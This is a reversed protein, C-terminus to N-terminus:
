TAGTDLRNYIISCYVYPRIHRKLKAHQTQKALYGSTSNSPGDRDRTIAKTEFDTKDPIFIQVGAKQNQM